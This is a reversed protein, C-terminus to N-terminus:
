DPGKRLRGRGPGLSSPARGSWSRRAKARPLAMEAVPAERGYLAEHEAWNDFGLRDVNDVFTEAPVGEALILSHGALEVHWYTFSAPM